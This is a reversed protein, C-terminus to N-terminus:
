FKKLIKKIKEGAIKEHIKKVGDFFKGASKQLMGKFEEYSIKEGIEKEKELSKEKEEM